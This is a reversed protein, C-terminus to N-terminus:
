QCSPTYLLDFGRSRQRCGYFRRAANESEVSRGHGYWKGNNGEILRAHAHGIEHALIVNPKVDDPDNTSIRIGFEGGAMTGFGSGGPFVGVNIIKDSAELDGMMKLLLRGGEAKGKDQMKAMAQAQLRLENWATEASDNLFQM